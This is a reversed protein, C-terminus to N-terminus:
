AVKMAQFYSSHSNGNITKTGTGSAFVYIEFYDTGNAEAYVSLNAAIFGTGSGRVETGSHLQTGNKYLAIFLVEQDVIGATMEACATFHYTGAPPTYKSNDADYYGGTDWEETDFTLKTFTASAISAQNASKYASFSPVPVAFWSPPASVCRWEGSSESRFRAVDGAKTTVDAGAPLIFNTADHTLQCAGSFRLEVEMGDAEGTWLGTITTTGTVVHYGGLSGDAPKALTTASAIDSGKQWLSALSDPTVAETDATGARTNGITSYVATGDPLTKNELANATSNWGLFKDAVPAPVINGSVAATVPLVLSRDLSDKLQQDRMVARDYDKEARDAPFPDNEVYDSEQTFPIDRYITLTGGSAPATNMTLTGGVGDGGTVTFDTTLALTTSVGSSDVYVANVDTDDFFSFHITFATTVGDTAYQERNITSSVTM